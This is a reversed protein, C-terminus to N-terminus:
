YGFYFTNYTWATLYSNTGGILSYTGTAPQLYVNHRSIVFHNVRASNQTWSIDAHSPAPIWNSGQNPHTHFAGNAGSPKSSPTIGARQGKAWIEPDNSNRLWGGRETNAKGFWRFSKEAERSMAVRNKFNDFEAYGTNHSYRIGAQVGYAAASVGAGILGAYLIEEDRAGNLYGGTAGGAFGGAMAGWVGNGVAGGVGGGVGGAVSGKWTADWVQDASQGEVVADGLAQSGGGAAGGALGGLFGGGAFGGVASGGFGAAGGINSHVFIEGAYDWFDGGENYADMAGRVTGAAAGIIAAVVCAALSFNGDPDIYYVPNTPYGYGNWYQNAADASFWVGIEPDYFRAGFYYAQIGGVGNEDAGEQDFEKGTFKERAPDAATPFVSSMEGYATYMIAESIGGDEAIVMRTSGLHDTIYLYRTEGSIQSMEIRGEASHIHHLNFDDEAFSKEYVADMVYASVTTAQAIIDEFTRPNEQVPGLLITNQGDHAMASQLKFFGAPRIVKDIQVHDIKGHFGKSAFGSVGGIEYPHLEQSVSAGIPIYAPDIVMVGDLYLHVEGDADSHTVAVHHWTNLSVDDLTQTVIANGCRYRLKASNNDNALFLGYDSEYESARKHVIIQEVVGVTTPYIWASISVAGPNSVLRTPILSLLDDHGFDTNFAAAAGIQGTVGRLPSGQIDAPVGNGTQNVYYTGSTSNIDYVAVSKEPGFVAAGSSQTTASTNGWYMTIYDETSNGRIEPVRVWVLAEGGSEDWKEIYYPLVTGDPDAFRIDAGGAQAQTFSFNASTLKVLVPIDATPQAVGAGAPKTNFVIRRLYQWDYYQAEIAPTPDGVKWVELLSLDGGTTAGLPVVQHIEIYGQTVELVPSEQKEIFSPQTGGGDGAPPHLGEYGVAYFKNNPGEQFHREILSVLDGSSGDRARIAQAHTYQADGGAAVFRYFGNPVDIRFVIRKGEGGKVGIFQDYIEDYGDFVGRNNPSDDINDIDTYGYGQAETYLFNAGGQVIKTYAAGPWFPVPRTYPDAGFAFAQYLMNDGPNPPIICQAVAVGGTATATRDNLRWVLENGDFNVSFEYMHRGPLFETVQGFGQASVGYYSFGNQAGVPIIVTESNPNYYGFYATYNNGGNDQVCELVASIPDGTPQGNVTLIAATSTASGQSNTAVCTYEGADSLAVSSIAYESGFVNTTVGNKFWEFLPTPNGTATVSFTASEGVFRTM